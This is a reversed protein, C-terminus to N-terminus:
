SKELLYARPLSSTLFQRRRRRASLRALGFVTGAGAFVGGLAVLTSAGLLPVGLAVFMVIFMGSLAPLIIDSAYRRVWADYARECDICWGRKDLPKDEECRKCPV